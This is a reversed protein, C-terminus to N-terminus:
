EDTHRRSAPRAQQAGAAENRRRLDDILVRMAWGIAKGSQEGSFGNEDRMTLWALMNSLYGFM